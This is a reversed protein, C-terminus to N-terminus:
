KRIKTRKREIRKERDSKINKKEEWEEKGEKDQETSRGGPVLNNWYYNM